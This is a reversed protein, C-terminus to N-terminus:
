PLRTLYSGKAQGLITPGPINVVRSKYGAGLTNKPVFAIEVGTVFTSDVLNGTGIYKLGLKVFKGGYYRFLANGTTDWKTAGIAVATGPAACTDSTASLSDVSAHLGAGLAGNLAIARTTYRFNVGTRVGGAISAWHTRLAVNYRTDVNQPWPFLTSIEDNTTVKWGVVGTAGIQRLKPTGIGASKAALSDAALGTMISAAGGFATSDNLPYAGFDMVSLFRYEPSWEVDYDTWASFLLFSALVVVGSIIPISFEKLIKKIM